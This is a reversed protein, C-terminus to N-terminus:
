RPRGTRKQKSASVRTAVALRSDLKSIMAGQKPDPQFLEGSFALQLKLWVDVIDAQRGFFELLM